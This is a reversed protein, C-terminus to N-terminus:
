TPSSSSQLEPESEAVSRDATQEQEQRRTTEIATPLMDFIEEALNDARREEGAHILCVALATTSISILVISILVLQMELAPAAHYLYEGYNSGFISPILVVNILSPLFLVSLISSESLLGDRGRINRLILSSLHKKMVEVDRENGQLAQGFKTRFTRDQLADAVTVIFLCERKSLVIDAISESLFFSFRGTGNNKLRRNKLEGELTTAFFDSDSPSAPTSTNSRSQKVLCRGLDRNFIEVLGDESTGERLSQFETESSTLLGPM